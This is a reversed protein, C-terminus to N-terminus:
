FSVDNDQELVTKSVFRGLWPDFEGMLDDTYGGNLFVEIVAVSLSPPSFVTIVAEKEGIIFRSPVCEGQTTTVPKYGHGPAIRMGHHPGGVITFNLKALRDNTDSM